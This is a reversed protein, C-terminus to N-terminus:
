LVANLQDEGRNRGNDEGHRRAPSGFKMAEEVEDEEEKMEGAERYFLVGCATLLLGSTIQLKVGAMFDCSYGSTCFGSFLMLLVCLFNLSAVLLSLRACSVCHAPKDESFNRCLSACLLASAAITAISLLRAMVPKDDDMQYASCQGYNGRRWPGVSESEGGESSVNLYSCTTSSMLSSVLGLAPVLVLFVYTGTVKPDEEEPVSEIPRFIKPSDMLSYPTSNYNHYDTQASSDDDDLLNNAEGFAPQATATSVINGKSSAASSLAASPPLKPPQLPPPLPPSPSSPQPPVYAQKTASLISQIDISDENNPPPLETPLPSQAKEAPPPPQVKSKDGDKAAPVTSPPSFADFAFPAGESSFYEPVVKSMNQVEEVPKPKGPTKKGLETEESYVTPSFVDFAKEGEEYQPIVASMNRVEETPRPKGPTKSGTATTEEYVTPSFIDFAKDGEEYEGAHQQTNVHIGSESQPPSPYPETEKEEEKEKGEQQKEEHVMKNEDNEGCSAANNMSSESSPACAYLSPQFPVQAEKDEDAMQVNEAEKIITQLNDAESAEERAKAETEERAKAEAEKRAKKERAERERARAAEDLAKAAQERAKAAEERARAAEKRAKAEAEKRAKKERAERERVKNNRAEKQRRAGSTRMEISSLDSDSGSSTSVLSPGSHERRGEERNLRRGEERNLVGLANCDQGCMKGLRELITM